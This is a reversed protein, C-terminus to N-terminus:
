MGNLMMRMVVEVGDERRTGYVEMEHLITKDCKIDQYISIIKV